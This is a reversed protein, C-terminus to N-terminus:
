AVSSSFRRRVIGALGIIGTGFLSLTGPEPVAPAPDYAVQGQADTRNSNVSSVWLVSNVAATNNGLALLDNAYDTDLASSNDNTLLSFSSGYETKWIAAQLAEDQTATTDTPALNTILWAIEGANNVTHNNVVGTTSYTANYTTNNSITDFLDVCYVETFTTAKGNVIGTSGAFNGGGATEKQGNISFTLEGASSNFNVTGSYTNGTTFSDAHAAGATLTFAATLAVLAIKFSPMKLTEMHHLEQNM